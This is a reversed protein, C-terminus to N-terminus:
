TNVMRDSNFLWLQEGLQNGSGRQKSRSRCPTRGHKRTTSSSAGTSESTPTEHTVLGLNLQVPKQSDGLVLKQYKAPYKCRVALGNDEIGRDRLTKSAGIDAHEIHGCNVCIFKEGDRNDKDVHGCKRCEQSSYRPNTQHVLVGSKEAVVKIKLYLSYWSADSISRNLGVKRSQGNKIYQGNEDQLPKCRAKMGKINLKELIIADAKKCYKNAVNWLFAERKNSIKLHFRGLLKYAKTKNRGKKNSNKSRSKNKKRSARRSLLRLRRSTNKNTLFRPNETKSGDSCHVLKTLGMDLGIVTKVEEPKVEVKQPVTNDEISLSIYWGNAKRRLTAKKVTFSDPIPRSNFYSVWGLKSIYIGNNTVDKNSINTITFSRFRSRRKPKPFGKGEKWFGQYARDLRKINQQLATSNIDKYWPRTKKLNTLEADQIQGANRTERYGKKSPKDKYVEGSAPFRSISCTLPCSVVPFNMDSSWDKKTAEYHYKRDKLCWNYHYYLM